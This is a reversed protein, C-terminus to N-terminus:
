CQSWYFKSQWMMYWLSLIEQFIIGPVESCRCMVFHVRFIINRKIKIKLVWKSKICAWSSTLELKSSEELCTKNGNRQVWSFNRKNNLKTIQIWPIRSKRLHKRNKWCILYIWHLMLMKLCWIGKYAEIFRWPDSNFWSKSKLVEIMVNQNSNPTDKETPLEKQIKKVWIGIMYIMKLRRLIKRQSSVRETVMKWGSSIHRAMIAHNTNLNLVWYVGIAHSKPYGVLVCVTGRANLQGQIKAKATVVHM